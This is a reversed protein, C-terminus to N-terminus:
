YHFHRFDDIWRRPPSGTFSYGKPHSNSYARGRRLKYAYAAEESIRKLENVPSLVKCFYGLNCDYPEEGRRLSSRSTLLGVDEVSTDPIRYCSVEKMSPLKRLWVFFPGMYEFRHPDRLAWRYLRNYLRIKEAKSNGVIEQQYSPTVDRGYLYHGGCSERFPVGCTFSKSSNTKFGFTSLASVVPDYMSDPIIIDDGYVVTPGEHPLRTYERVGECIAYFLLSELEFTFANGMSSFKELKRWTGEVRTSHSRLDNLLLFWNIPLLLQVLATSISDSASSLDITSLGLRLADRALNQSISQDDLRVGWAALCFRLHKGVGQQLFANGTPEASICRETKASKPVTLWRNGPVVTYFPQLPSIPGDPRSHKTILVRIWDPDGLVVKELYPVALPTVSLRRSMKQSFPTGRKLDFTAGRSWRCSSFINSPPSPGIIQQVKRQVLSVLRPPLDTPFESGSLVSMLKSNVDKCMEESAEWGGRAVEKVNIGTPLGKWKRPFSMLLYNYDFDVEDYQCDAVELKLLDAYRRSALLNEIAKSLTTRKCALLKRYVTLTFEDSLGQKM